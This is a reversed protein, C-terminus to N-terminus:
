FFHLAKLKYIDWDLKRALAGREKNQRVRLPGKESDCYTCTLVRAECVPGTCFRHDMCTYCVDVNAAAHKPDIEAQSVRPQNYMRVDDWEYEDGNNFWPRCPLRPPEDRSLSADRRLRYRVQRDMKRVMTEFFPEVAIQGEESNLWELGYDAQFLEHIPEVEDDITSLVNRNM